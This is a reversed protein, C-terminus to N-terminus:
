ESLSKKVISTILDQILQEDVESQPLQGKNYRSVKSKRLAEEPTNSVENFGSNFSKKTDIDQGQLKQLNQFRKIIDDFDKM